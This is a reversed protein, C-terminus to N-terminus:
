SATHPPARLRGTVSLGAVVRRSFADLAVALYLFGAWTPVFAIDKLELFSPAIRLNTCTRPFGRRGFGFNLFSRFNRMRTKPSVEGVTSCLFGETTGKQPLSRLVSVNPPYGFKGV